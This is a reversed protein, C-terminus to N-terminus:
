TVPAAAPAPGTQDHGLRGPKLVAQTEGAGLAAIAAGARGAKGPDALVLDVAESRTQAEVTLGEDALVGTRRPALAFLAARQNLQASAVAYEPDGAGTAAHVLIPRTLTPRPREPTRIEGLTVVPDGGRALAGAHITSLEMCNGLDGRDGGIVSKRSRSGLRTWSM